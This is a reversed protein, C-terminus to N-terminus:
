EEHTGLVGRDERKQFRSELVDFAATLHEIAKANEDCNFRTGQYHALRDRAIEILTQVYAGNQGVDVGDVVTPGRQWEISIGAARAFGGNPNGNEDLNHQSRFESM